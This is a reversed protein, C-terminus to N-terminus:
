WYKGSKPKQGQLKQQAKKKMEEKEKQMLAKLLKEAKEKNEKDEKSQQQQQKQQQQQQQEEQKQQQQQKDQNEEQKEQQDQQQQQQEQKEKEEDKNEDQNQQQQNQQQQQQRQLMRSALEYNYRAEPNESDEILSQRYYKIADKYEKEQFKINGLNHYTQSKESFTQDRLALNFEKEATAFDGNKYLSTGRNFHLTGEDPNNVSNEQFLEDAEEFDQKEFNKIGKKNRHVKDYTIFESFLPLVPLILLLILLKKM